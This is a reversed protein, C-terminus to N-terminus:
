DQFVGCPRPLSGGSTCSATASALFLAKCAVNLSCGIDCIFDAACKASTEQYVRNICHYCGELAGGGNPDVLM